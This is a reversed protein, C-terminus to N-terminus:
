NKEKDYGMLYFLMLGTYYVIFGSFIVDSLFHGGQINRGIGMALGYIIGTALFVFAAKRKKNYLLFFPFMMFFGASAHGSPFSNYKGKLKKYEKLIGWKVRGDNLDTIKENRKSFELNGMTMPPVYKQTGGFTTIERPRPRGMYEKLTANVILGPGIILLLIIFVSHKRMTRMKAKFISIALIALSTVVTLLAAWPGFNYLFKVIVNNRLFWEGNKYFMSMYTIDLNTLYFPITLIVWTVLPFIALFFKEKKM